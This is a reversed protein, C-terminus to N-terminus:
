CNSLVDVWNATAGSIDGRINGDFGAAAFHGGRDRDCGHTM